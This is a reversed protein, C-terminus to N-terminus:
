KGTTSIVKFKIVWVWPNEIWSHEDNISIWLDRFAFRNESGKIDDLIGKYNESSVGETKADEESIDQLREVNIDTIELWIRSAHKPMFISPRWRGRDILSDYGSISCGGAKFECGFGSLINSPKVKDLAKSTAWTERVWLLGGRKYYCKSGLLSGGGDSFYAQTGVQPNAHYGFKEFSMSNHDFGSKLVRRTQTKKGALIATVMPTSFLIPSEKMITQKEAWKCTGYEQHYCAGWERATCTPCPKNSM